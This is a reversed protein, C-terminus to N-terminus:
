MLPIDSAASIAKWRNRGTADEKKWPYLVAQSDRKQVQEFWPKLYGEVLEDYPDGSPEVTVILDVRFVHERAPHFNQSAKSQQRKHQIAYLKGLRRAAPIADPPIDKFEKTNNTSSQILKAAIQAYSDKAPPKMQQQAAVDTETSDLEM